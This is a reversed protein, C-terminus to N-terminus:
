VTVKWGIQEFMKQLDARDAPTLQRLEGAFEKLTQGPKQGFFRKCAVVFTNPTNSGLQREDFDNLEM